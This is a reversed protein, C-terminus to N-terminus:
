CGSSRRRLGFRGCRGDVFRNAVDKAAPDIGGDEARPEIEGHALPRAARSAHALREVAGIADPRLRHFGQEDAESVLILVGEHPRPHEVVHLDAIVREVEALRELRAEIERRVIELREGADIRGWRFDVREAGVGHPWACM